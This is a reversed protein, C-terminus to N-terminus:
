NTSRPARVSARRPRTSRTGPSSSPRRARSGTPSSPGSRTRSRSRRTSAAPRVPIDPPQNVPIAHGLIREYDARHGLAHERDVDAHDGTAGAPVAEYWRSAGVAAGAAVIGAVAAVGMRRRRRRRTGADTRCRPARPASWSPARRTGRPPRSRSRTRSSTTSHRPLEPALDLRPPPENLPRLRGLESERDLRSGALCEFSAASRTSTPEATSTAARSRSRHSTTSRAWSAVTRQSAAPRRSTVLSGSTACARARRRARRPPPHQRAKRGPARAGGRACRRPGRRGAGRRRDRARSETPRAAPPAERLDVGEVHEMALYLVGGEEGADLIPVVHPHDLSAALKSERLFRRRFREDDALDRGLVKLAIRGRAEYGRGPFRGWPAKAM